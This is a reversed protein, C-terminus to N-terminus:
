RRVAHGRPELKQMEFSWGDVSAHLHIFSAGGHTRVFGSAGPNAITPRESDDIGLLHSHGFVVARAEPHRQRLKAFRTKAPNRRHGHEVVLTGGPLRLRCEAPLNPVDWQAKVDNNGAVAVAHKARRLLELVELSGIDGAHVALDAGEIAPIIRQDLKGHTDSVLVCRVSDVDSLDIADPWTKEHEVM